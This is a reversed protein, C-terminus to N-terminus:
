NRSYSGPLPLIKGDLQCELCQCVLRNDPEVWWRNGEMDEPQLQRGCFDCVGCLEDVTKGQRQAYEKVSKRLEKDM